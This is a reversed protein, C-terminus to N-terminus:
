PLTGEPSRLSTLEPPLDQGEEKCVEIITQAVALLSQPNEAPTDGWARCGQLAPIRGPVDLRPEGRARPIYDLQYIDM